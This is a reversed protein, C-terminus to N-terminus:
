CSGSWISTASAPEKGLVSLMEQSARAVGGLDVGTEIGMGHLLYLLKETALNGSAGPAYPCGGLGGASADFIKIGMQLATLVNALATGHTDHFHLAMREIQAREAVPGVVDPVQNPTAVGITDGLCLEHVGLDLLRQSIAFVREPAVKGEYPCGFCVSLYARVSLGERAALDVVPRFADISEDVTMNINRQTFTDTAGTFVAVERVGADLARQMGKLNPVLASYRAGKQPRVAAFVEAADALQPVARPSVFSTVEIRRLGAAALSEVFRVKAELPVTVAENQLGDRPGVEVIEVHRPVKSLADRIAATRTNERM